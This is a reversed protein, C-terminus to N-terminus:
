KSRHNNAYNRAEEELQNQIYALLEEQSMQEEPKEHGFPMKPYEARRDGGFGRALAVTVAHYFYAGQLWMDYDRKKLRNIYAKEYFKLRCYDGYWFEDFSVGMAMYYECLKELWETLNTLKNKSLSSAVEEDNEM